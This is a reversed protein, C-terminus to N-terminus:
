GVQQVASRARGINLSDFALRIPVLIVTLLLFFVGIAVLVEVLTFAQRTRRPGSKAFSEHTFAM